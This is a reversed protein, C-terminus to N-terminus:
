NFIKTKFILEDLVINHNQDKFDCIKFEIRPSLQTKLWNELEQNGIKAQKPKFRTGVIEHTRDEIGWVIYGFQKNSLAASNSLASIYEGIDYPNENNHKFELWETESPQSRFTDLLSNLYDM